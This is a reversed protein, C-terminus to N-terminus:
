NKDHSSSFKRLSCACLFLGLLFLLPVIFRGMHLSAPPFDEEKRAPLLANIQINDPLTSLKKKKYENPADIFEITDGSKRLLSIHAGKTKTPLTLVFAISEDRLKKLDDRNLITIKSHIKKSKLYAAIEEFNVGRERARPFNALVDSFEIKEGGWTKLAVYTSIM